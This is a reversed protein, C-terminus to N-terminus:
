FNKLLVRVDSCVIELAARPFSTHLSCQAKVKEKKTKGHEGDEDNAREKRDDHSSEFNLESVPKIEKQERLFLLMLVSQVGVIHWTCLEEASEKILWFPM